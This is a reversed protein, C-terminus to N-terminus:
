ACNGRTMLNHRERSCECEGERILTDPVESARRLRVHSEKLPVYRDIPGVSCLAKSENASAINAEVLPRGGM